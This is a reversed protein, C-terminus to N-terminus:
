LEIFKFYNFGPILIHLEILSHDNYFVWCPPLLDSKDYFSVSNVAELWPISFM